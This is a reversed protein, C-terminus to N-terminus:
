GCGDGADANKGRARRRGAHDKREVVRDVLDVAAAAANIAGDESGCVLLDADTVVELHLRERVSTRKRVQSVCNAEVLVGEEASRKSSTDM